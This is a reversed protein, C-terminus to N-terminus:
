PGGVLTVTGTKRDVSVMFALTEENYQNTYYKHIGRFSASYVGAADEERALCIASEVHWYTAIVQSELLFLAIDRLTLPFPSLDLIKGIETRQGPRIRTADVRALPTFYKGSVVPERTTKRIGMLMAGRVAYRALFPVADFSEATLDAAQVISGPNGSRSSGADWERFPNQARTVRIQMICSESGNRDGAGAAAADPNMLFGASLLALFFLLWLDRKM